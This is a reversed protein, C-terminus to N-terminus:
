ALRKRQREERAEASSPAAVPEPTHELPLNWWGAGLDADIPRAPRGVFYSLLLRTAPLHGEEAMSLLKKMICRMAKPTFVEFIVTRLATVKAAFPNCKSSRANNEHESQKSTMEASM